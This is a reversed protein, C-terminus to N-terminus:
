KEGNARRDTVRLVRFTKAAVTYEARSQEKWTIKFGPVIAEEADGIKSKIETDAAEVWDTAAKIYAKRRARQTLLPQLRNDTSLDVRKGESVKAHMAEIVEADASYVPPPEIGADTNKWFTRTIERVRGEAGAHRDVMQLDLDATYTSIILVAVANWASEVLMGETLSQLQFKLPPRGDEWDREYIPRSVVKCQINGIGPRAPDIAVADPTAGLRIEPDRLYVGARRIDWTPYHDRLAEIVAAELWRGRRLIDSDDIGGIKGTKEAYVRLPTRSPDVGAVAGIDSATLDRQRLALWSARDTVPYSEIAM